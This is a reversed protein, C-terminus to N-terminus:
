QFNDGNIVKLKNCVMLFVKEVDLGDTGKPDNLILEVKKSLPRWQDINRMSSWIAVCDTNVAAAIHAALSEVCIILQAGGMVFVFESWNIANTLDISSQLFCSVNSVNKAERQGYGTFVVNMKRNSLLICLNIWKAVPWEREVEGTGMHIVIYQEGKFPPNFFSNKQFNQSAINYKLDQYYQMDIPLFKLLDIHYQSIHKNSKKWVKAHTLMPGFGGSTYGIRIPIKLKWFIQIFNPFYSYFDIVANYQIERIQSKATLRTQWYRALKKYISAESRNLKWHDINHVYDILSLGEIVPMSWSGIVVGIKCNPFNNKLAAIVSTLIVVDGLHAGNSLLIKQPVTLLKANIKPKPLLLSLTLDVIILALWAIRNSILYTSHYKFIL